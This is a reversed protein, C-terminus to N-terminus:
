HSLVNMLHLDNYLTCQLIHAMQKMAEEGRRKQALRAQYSNEKVSFFMPGQQALWYPDVVSVCQMYEKSTLVLEHYVVYDPTFGIGYLSSTPHLYCKMATRLNEYEGIGKMRAANIFYASSVAQRVKDWDSGCSTLSMKQQTCTDQLQSRIERVKKLTKSQLFHTACWDSRYDNNKWQQYVHLMTLHDSEPVAFKERAADSEEARDKPRYFIHGLGGVSLSAVITLVEQNCHLEEAMILMKSLPPDLPFEVMKRGMPTLEGTNGLAGLVWLQYMSNLMNDEPPPDMFDFDLLDVVGLSKLLLVVNGLNTRQIEPITNHLMEFQYAIETFLRWCVGPGTRGARGARQRANAQSEPTVQLSDMGMRPNFVKLKYYGCDIVYKIGDITLSTEAINTAVVVKRAESQVAKFIKAQLESPLMSHIPLIELEGVKAGDAILEELREQLLFCVADIDEQGTMFCLVDGKPYGLHIQMVQKVTAEVYDEVPAKAHMYEVPFTRGPINFTPVGGFFNSFKDADMTASTVILKMDRRRQVVKRLIGFLVDTNLSREHAEDMIIASYADLDPEQLTERLLIGDTMFKLKTTADTVDEFRIAYGVTTGLECDVEEAVRKAVSMAAVRRPQTCGVNGYSTYGEEHLYQAMQTTKGSGTEGVVVVVQNDRIVQLLEDRVTFIPLSERQQKLTKTKAFESQAESKGKMHDGFKAGKKYDLEGDETLDVDEKEKEKEKVGMLGGIKSGEIEWFKERCKNLDRKKRYEQVSLCGKRAIKALDSSPDRVTAVTDQKKTLVARGDLFPPKLDHVILHVRGETDDETEALRSAKVVGSNMLQNDIWKDDDALYAQQRASVKKKPKGDATRTSADGDAGGLFPDYAGSEDLFAGGEDNDYWDRDLEQEKAEYERQQREKEAATLPRDGDRDQERSAEARASSGWRAAGSSGTGAAKPPVRGQGINAVIDFQDVSSRVPTNAVSSGVQSRVPTDPEWTSAKSRVSDSGAGDRRAAPRDDRQRDDREGEGRGASSFSIGGDRGRGREREQIRDRAEANLGVGASPTESGKSRYNPRGAPRDKARSEGAEAGADEAGATDEQGEFSMRARKSPLVVGDEERKKAALGQLGLVSSRAEPKKFVPKDSGVRMLGGKTIGGGEVRERVGGSFAQVSSQLEAGKAHDQVRALIKRQLEGLHPVDTTGLEAKAKGDFSAPNGKCAVALGVLKKADNTSLKRPVKGKTFGQVDDLIASYLKDAANNAQRALENHAVTAMTLVLRWGRPGVLGARWARCWSAPVGRSPNVPPAHGGGDGPTKRRPNARDGQLGKL